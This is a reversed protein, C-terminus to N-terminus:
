GSTFVQMALRYSSWALALGLVNSLAIYTIATGSHGSEFLRMSEYSFSSFTTLGGLLGVLIFLRVEERLLGTTAGWGALFGFVACGVLNVVFTAMPFRESPSSVWLSAGYRLGSGIAGGLMVCALNLM